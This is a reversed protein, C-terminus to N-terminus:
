TNYSPSDSSLGRLSLPARLAAATTTAANYPPLAQLPLIPPFFLHKPPLTPSGPQINLLQTWVQQSPSNMSQIYWSLYVCSVETFSCFPSRLLFNM